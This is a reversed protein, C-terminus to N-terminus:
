PNELKFAVITDSHDNFGAYIGGSAIVVIYQTGDIEYTSPPASGSAPLEYEWLQTGTAADFARIKKDITGTAFVLGGKTVMLGGFNSQGTIPVGRKTLESYEGFPVQWIKTGLNLDIATILGWPPKSGPYGESDLLLQWAHTINLSRRDDSIHDAASLYENIINLDDAKITEAFSLGIHDEYFQDLGGFERSATIGILSPYSTDGTFEKEYYGERDRGHCGACKDQYLADGKLDISPITNKMRDSFYLRLTLPYQNSPVYLIGNEQNVAAGPWEAGGHLGFVAIKGNVTPPIFFGFKARHLKREVSFTQDKSLDTIDSPEFVQKMFPEPLEVAPQYPWTKEGPVDSVPTRQLRYDFVPRGSDRELLLTNGIKTVTAVADIPKGYRRITVLIPPSPVDFDWLDHAVEQFSWIIKGSKTDVSVVSSSFENRGPRTAGYLSPRPNGTSVYVKSRGKDLSMGAWPSGGGIRFKRAGLRDSYPLFSNEVKLLDTKWLLKGSEVDFAQISPATTAVILRNDDVVPAILSAGGVRGNQGFSQIISGTDPDIAYTGQSSPVFLRAANKANGPWWLLGRRAVGDGPHIEPHAGRVPPSSGGPIQVRWKELGTAADISLLFNAPSPVFIRGSAFIPNAEVNNEWKPEGSHYIWAPRLDRVNLKNIQNLQSYKSSFDDGNSRQWTTLKNMSTNNNSNTFSNELGPIVTFQPLTNRETKDDTLLSSNSRFISYSIPNTDITYPALSHYLDLIYSGTTTDILENKVYDKNWGVYYYTAYICLSFSMFIIAFKIANKARKM